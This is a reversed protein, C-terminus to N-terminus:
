LRPGIEVLDTRLGCTPRRLCEELHGAGGDIARMELLIARADHGSEDGVAHAFCPELEVGKTHLSPERSCPRRGQGYTLSVTGVGGARCSGRAHPSFSSDHVYLRTPHGDFRFAVFGEFMWKLGRLPALGNRRHEPTTLVGQKVGHPLTLFPSRLTRTWGSSGNRERRWCPSPRSPARSRRPRRTRRGRQV